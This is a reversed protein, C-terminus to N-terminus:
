KDYSGRFDGGHAYAPPKRRECVLNRAHKYVARFKGSTDGQGPWTEGSFLDTTSSTDLVVVHRVKGQQVFANQEQGSPMLQFRSGVLFAFGVVGVALLAVLMTAMSFRLHGTATGQTGTEQPQLVAYTAGQFRERIPPPKLGDPIAQEAREQLAKTVRQMHRQNM